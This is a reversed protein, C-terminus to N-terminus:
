NRAIIGTGACLDACEDNWNSVAMQCLLDALCYPTAYQGRIERKATNVTTELIEQLVKQDIKEIKNEILFQNYDVIDIWTNEPIIENYELKKFVNYFDGKEILEDIIANGDLPTSAGDIRDIKYACNHYKKITNAFMIRTVWNLLISKAYASYMNNEDKDYEEHFMNWWM